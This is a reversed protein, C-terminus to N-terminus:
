QEDRERLHEELFLVTLQIFLDRNEKRRFGHGENRAVMTWVPNGGRRVAEVIQETEGLPVRPDNAGHAVFLASRIRDVTNVPSISELHRRM